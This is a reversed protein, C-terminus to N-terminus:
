INLYEVYRATGIFKSKLLKEIEEKIKSMIQPAFKRLLEPLNGRLRIGVYDVDCLGVLKYDKSKKYLIGLNTTGKLYKFIRM